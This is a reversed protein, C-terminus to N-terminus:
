YQPEKEKCLSLSTPRGDTRRSFLFVSVVREMLDAFGREYLCM